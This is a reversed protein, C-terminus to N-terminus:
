MPRRPTPMVKGGAAFRHRRLREAQKWNYGIRPSIALGKKFIQCFGSQGTKVPRLPKASTYAKGVCVRKDAQKPSCTYVCAYVCAAQQSVGCLANHPSAPPMLSQRRRKGFLFVTLLNRELTRRRQTGHGHIKRGCAADPDPAKAGALPPLIDERSAQVTKRRWM